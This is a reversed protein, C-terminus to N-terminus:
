DSDKLPKSNVAGQVLQNPHENNNASIKGFASELILNYKKM